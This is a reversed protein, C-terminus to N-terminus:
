RLSAAVASFPRLGRTIERPTHRSVLTLDKPRVLGSEALTQARVGRTSLGLAELYSTGFEWRTLVEPGGLHLLSPVEVNGVLRVAVELLAQAVDGVEAPSRREDTFLTVPEGAELDRAMKAGRPDPPDLAYLLPLRAIVAGPCAERVRKEAEAKARGYPTVPSTPAEEDYPAHDGDFVMDTSVHVLRAGVADAQRAVNESGTVIVDDFDAEDRAIATHVVVAPHVAQFIRRCADADRLDLRYAVGPAGRPEHSAYTFSVVWGPAARAVLAGGLFGSGGTVLLPPGM